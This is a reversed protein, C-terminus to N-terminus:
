SRVLYSTASIESSISELSSRVRSLILNKSKRNAKVVGKKIVNTRPGPNTLMINDAGIHVNPVISEGIKLTLVNSIIIIPSGNPRILSANM